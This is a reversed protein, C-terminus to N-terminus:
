GGSAEKIPISEKANIGWLTLNFNTIKGSTALYGDTPRIVVM